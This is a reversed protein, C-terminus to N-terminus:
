FYSLPSGIRKLSCMLFDKKQLKIIRIYQHNANKKKMYIKAIYVNKLETLYSFDLYGGEVSTRYSFFSRQM